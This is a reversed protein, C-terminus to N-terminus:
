RSFGGPSVRDLPINKRRVTGHPGKAQGFGKPIAGRSGFGSPIGRSGPGRLGLRRQLNRMAKSDLPDVFGYRFYLSYNELNSAQHSYKDHKRKPETVAHKALENYSTKIACERVWDASPVGTQVTVHPLYRRFAYERDGYLRHSKIMKFRPAIPKPLPLQADELYPQNAEKRAIQEAKLRDWARQRLQATLDRFETLFSARSHIQDAAPDSFARIERGDLWLGYMLEGILREETDPKWPYCADGREPWIGAMLHAIRLPNPQTKQYGWLVHFGEAGDIATAQAAMLAFDDGTGAPDMTIDLPEDARYPQNVRRIAGAEPYVWQSFGAFPDRFYERMVRQMQGDSRGKALVRREWDADLYANQHWNYERVMDPSEAKATQWGQFHQEGKEFSETSAPFVRACSEMAALTDELEAIFADEDPRGYTYTGGRGVQRNASEGHLATGTVPNILQMHKYYPASLLQKYTFVGEPYGPLLFPTHESIKRLIYKVKGFMAETSEGKDVWDESRSTLKASGEDFLYFATDVHEDDWSIGLQRSKSRWIIAQEIWSRHIWDQQLATNDCQYAFKAYPKHKAEGPIPKPDYIWGYVAGFYNWDRSAKEREAAAFAPNSNGLRHIFPRAEHVLRRTWAKHDERWAVDEYPNPEGPTPRWGPPIVLGPLTRFGPVIDLGYPALGPICADPFTKATDIDVRFSDDVDGTWIQGFARM